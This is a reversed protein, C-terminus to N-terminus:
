HKKGKRSPRTRTPAKGEPAATNLRKPCSEKMHRQVSSERRSEFAKGCLECYLPPPRQDEPLERAHIVMHRDITKTENKIIHGCKHCTWMDANDKVYPVVKRAKARKQTRVPGPVKNEKDADERPRSPGPQPQEPIPAPATTSAPWLQPDLVAFIDDEPNPYSRIPANLTM